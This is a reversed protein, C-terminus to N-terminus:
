AGTGDRNWFFFPPSQCHTRAIMFNRKPAFKARFHAVTTPAARLKAIERSFKMRHSSSPCALDSSMGGGRRRHGSRGEEPAATAFAAFLKVLCDRSRAERRCYNVCELVADAAAEQMNYGSISISQIPCTEPLYSLIDAIIQLSPAPPYITSCVFTLSFGM